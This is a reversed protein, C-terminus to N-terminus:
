HLRFEPILLVDSHAYTTHVQSDMRRDGLLFATRMLFQLGGPCRRVSPGEAYWELQNGLLRPEPTISRVLSLHLPLATAIAM